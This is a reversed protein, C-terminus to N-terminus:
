QPAQETAAKEREIKKRGVTLSLIATATLIGIIVVLSQFPTPHPVVFPQGNNLWSLSNSSMAELILKVGIYLLIAGLGYPLYVLRDMLGGLLFYLQRLGMLAFLNTSFVIFPDQTIGFIAPISDLAFVVDTVGLAIIVLFLPTWVKRGDVVTRFKNGVYEDSVSLRKRLIQVVRSEPKEEGSHAGPKVQTWATWILFAGFIYFVWSWREIVAAGVLIMAGRLVLAILIGIMLVTQQSQPPVKFRTLIIIFIFLNDISLSKEVVFGTYFQATLEAHQTVLYLVLGFILAIGIYFSAWAVCEKFSPVHPRRIVLLLDIIIILLMVSLTVAEFTLSLHASGM